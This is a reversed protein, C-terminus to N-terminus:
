AVSHTVTGSYTGAPDTPQTRITLTPNWRVTTTFLGTIGACSYATRTQALTQPTALQGATCLSGLLNTLTGPGSLYGVRDNPLVWTQDGQTVRFSSTLTATATWASVGSAATVTVTGLQASLSDGPAGAGLSVPGSPASISLGPTELPVPALQPGGRAPVVHASTLVATCAVLM